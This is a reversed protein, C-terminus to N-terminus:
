YSLTKNKSDHSIEPADSKGGLDFQNTLKELGLTSRKLDEIASIVEEARKANEKSVTNITITSENIHEIQASQEENAVAVQEIVESVKTVSDIIRDLSIGAKEAFNRGTTVKKLGTSISDIAGSSDVQIQKIMAAINKTASTTRESLKQVEDAVVAFGRGHEGARAAEIAANLALLNTQEAIEDILEVIEGIENSSAGLKQITDAAHNVVESIEVIGNITQKVIQGGEIAFQKAEISAQSATESNKSSHNINLSMQEVASVVEASRNTQEVTGESIKGASINIHQSATATSQIAHILNIIIKRFNEVAINFGSFLRSFSDSNQVPIHAALDGEAFSNMKTLLLDFGNQLYEQQEKLTKKIEEDKRRAEEALMSKEEEAEKSHRIEMELKQNMEELSKRKQKARKYYYNATIGVLILILLRFWWTAWFPPRIIVTLMTGQQNWIGDNNSGKVIFEYTGPSLNTYSAMRNTGVYNWNDDFGKLMYAYQNKESTRYNLATFQFSFVSQRYSLSIEKCQSIDSDLPSDDSGPRVSKNFIQLDSIVIPPIYPNDVVHKPDFFDFGNVGGFLLKGNKTKYCSNTVYENGQIGDLKSYIKISNSKSDLKCLGKNTSIWINGNDDKEIGRISNNPLGNQEYYHEIKKTNINIKNLGNITGIWLTSSNEVFISTVFGTSLLNPNKGDAPYNTFKGTQPNLISLGQTTGILVDGNNDVNIVECHDALLASNSQNYLKFSQNQPNFEIAGDTTALWLIGRSDETIDFINNSEISSNTKTFSKFSRSKKNFLSLGGDWTGIWINEKHDIHITLVADRNLNTTSTNYHTFSNTYPNFNDLGGGDTAVWVSGENDEAFNRVTNTALSKNNGPINRLCNLVQNTKNLFNIGGSFTGFWLDGAKDKLISYISNNNLSAPNDPNHKYITFTKQFSPLFNIGSNETGIWLGNDDPCLSLILNGSLSQKNNPENVFASLTHESINNLNVYALGNGYTGIWLQNNKDETIARIEYNQKFSGDPLKISFKSFTTGDNNLLHLGNSITGVWIRGGSDKFTIKVNNDGISQNSSGALFEKFKNQSREYCVLGLSTAIWVNKKSDETISNIEGKVIGAPYEATTYSKFRDTKRNFVCLGQNTGVWMSGESDECLSLLSNNKLSTSDNPDTKYVKLSYGDFKNLGDFTGFWIFGLKDQVIARVNSQSLGEDTTIHRFKLDSSQSFINTISFVIILFLKRM